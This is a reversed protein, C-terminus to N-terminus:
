RDSKKVVGQLALLAEGRLETAAEPTLGLMKATSRPVQAELDHDRDDSSEVVRTLSNGHRPAIVFDPERDIRTRIDKM